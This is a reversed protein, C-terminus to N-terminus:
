AGLSGVAAAQAFRPLAHPLHTGGRALIHRGNGLEGAELPEDDWPM